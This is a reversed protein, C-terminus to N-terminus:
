DVDIALRGGRPASVGGGVHEVGMIRLRGRVALGGGVPEADLLGPLIPGVVDRPGLVALGDIVRGSAVASIHRHRSSATKRGNPIQNEDRTPPIHISMIM